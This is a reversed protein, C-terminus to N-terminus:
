KVPSKIVGDELCNIDAHVIVRAPETEGKVSNCATKRKGLTSNDVRIKSMAGFASPTAM